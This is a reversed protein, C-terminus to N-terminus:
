LWNGMLIFPAWYYPHAYPHQPDPIFRGPTDGGATAPGGSLRVPQRTDTDGAPAGAADGHLFGLQAQRLAEAKSLGQEVRLRYLQQMFRGTSADAVPWLTAIVGKAGKQQVLTGLGEVERGAYATLSVATECASLTVLDVHLFRQTRLERLSLPTGDGLLLFSSDDGAELAFHTALHIVPYKAQSLVGKFAAATFAGDLIVTGPAVGDPDDAQAHRVIGELEQPVTPLRSFHRHQPGVDAHEASVGLGAVQWGPTPPADLNQDQVATYVALGYREILYREGDHLAALPLYRLAGDLYVMLVQAGGADLAAAIPAILQHYFWQGQPRPDRGPQLLPGQQEDRFSQIARNLEAETLPVEVARVTDGLTLLIHLKDPMALYQVLAVRAGSQEELTRLLEVKDEQAKGLRQDLEGRRQASLAASQEAFAAIIAALAQDFAARATELRAELDSIRAQEAPTLVKLARLGRLEAGLAALTDGPGALRQQQTREFDNLGVSAQRPDDAADRRIFDYYEQEKLMRLVQQAEPLRAEAILLDALNKYYIEKTKLFASQTSQEASALNQRVSQLTNVAQKGFFIALPRQNRTGYFTSLDGNVTWFIAPEGSGQAIPLAEHYLPEAEGSRGTANLLYALNNLSLAIDPHGAPLAAQRIALAERYLPEAEAYRGTTKLLTALNNLSGAIDPHGKPLAIRHIDLAERYLPEAEAYRGTIARLTALNNLSRAIDSHGRPLATKRIELAERYLPEAEVYRGTTKLLLALNNLSRAIDPHGKPRATRHIDLAERYLPEAEAYRGTAWLLIALNNLSGAIDPHGKPLAAKRINLAERYLPEAETYRGTTRLLEALNNLSTAIGPHGKPLVARRIDLAERYLSEAEAYRGTIALLAALSNLSNAVNPHGKPLATRHIDLAERFLPEAEAYRGTTRLLEALSDLSKAVNPHGKPLATRRIDLAERYLPEAEAYRGTTYLLVALNNLSMAIDPHGKSLAVRRIDLAERFLPEAESYRGTTDLLIALNNLSTSIDLHGKPLATRRIDLAERYLPEAEAYRGTTRLLEALSGLSKAVNPHGKPLGTRHIDLAERYLPEAEAYRGTTDLLSALNNLSTSIDPHGKPLAARRIDLAERYLPEAKAYQAAEEYMSAAWSLAASIGGRPRGSARETAVVREFAVAAALYDRAEWLKYAQALVEEAQRQRAFVIQNDPIAKRAETELWAREARVAEVQWDHTVFLDFNALPGAKLSEEDPILPITKAYWEHATNRDGQLLYTHGLNVTLAYADPDISRAKETVRRAEALKGELILVWGLNGWGDALDPALETVRRLDVIAEAHRQLEAFWDSRQLLLDVDDPNKALLRDYMAFAREHEGAQHLAEAAELSDAPEPQAAAQDPRSPAGEMAAPAAAPVPATEAGVAACWGIVCALSLGLLMVSRRLIKMSDNRAYRGAETLGRM